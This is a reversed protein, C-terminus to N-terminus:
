RRRGLAQLDEAAEAGDMVARENRLVLKGKIEAEALWSKPM